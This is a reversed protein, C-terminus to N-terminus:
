LGLFNWLDWNDIFKGVGKGFNAGSNAGGMIGTFYDRDTATAQEIHWDFNKQGLQAINRNYTDQSEKMRTRHGGPMWSAREHEIADVTMNAGTIMKDLQGKSQRDQIEINRDLSQSAYARVTENAANGRTGSMAESALSGGIASSTQIRADQIGFAQALMATNYDDMGMSLQTDLNKKQVGLQGLAEGKQISFQEDGAEKGYLYQQWATKKQQKLAAKEEEERQRVSDYGAWGGLGAGLLGILAMWWM